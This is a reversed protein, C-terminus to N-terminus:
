QRFDIGTIRGLPGSSDVAQAETAKMYARWSAYDAEGSATKKIQTKERDNLASQQGRILFAAAFAMVLDDHKGPAAEEKLTEHGARTVHSAKQFSEMECLTKYDNIIEPNERFAVKFAELARPRTTKTMYHGYKTTILGRMNESAARQNVYINPYDLKLLTELVTTETGNEVTALAWNYMKGLLYMQFAVSDLLLDATNFTAAQHLNTNDIVHVAVDDGNEQKNPDCCILYPEGPIPEEFIRILGNRSDVFRDNELWLRSADDNSTPRMDRSGNNFHFFGCRVIPNHEVVDRKRDAVDEAGFACDGTAIFADVPSFPYEQLVKEKRKHNALYRKWYWNMQEDSLKYHGQKSLMWEELPPMAEGPQLPRKYDENSYWPVFLAKYGGQGGEDEDWIEKYENFGNATTEIFVFTNQADPVTQASATLTDTLNGQFFAAETFHIADYTDSRGASEGAVLVELISGGYETEMYEQGKNYKLTPKYTHPGYKGKGNAREYAKIEPLYPNYDDLHDYFYQYKRFINGAHDKEDAIIAIKYDKRCLWEIFLFGAIFTSFGIQRAKLIDIRVPEGRMAQEAMEAYLRCQAHNLRFRMKKNGKADAQKAIICLLKEMLQWVNFRHGLFAVVFVGDYKALLNDALTKERDM